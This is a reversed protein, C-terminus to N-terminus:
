KIKIYTMYSQFKKIKETLPIDAIIAKDQLHIPPQMKDVLAKLYSSKIAYNVNESKFYDRNLGSSTIGVLNGNNDFLPGGSNGPQIPVSIQYFTVDGMLGSKASIKGDTFKVEDGMVNAIPYGLTFVESGTDKINTTFNYPIPPLNNFSDDDIKLISLDNVEDSLVVKAPHHEWEGDRVISVEIVNADEVVHYNTAVYGDETLFFGSGSAVWENNSVQKPLYERPINDPDVLESISLDGFEFSCIEDSKNSGTVCCISGDYRIRDMEEVPVDNIVLSTQEGMNYISLTNEEPEIAPTTKWEQQNIPRGKKMQLFSYKTGSIFLGCYNDWDKFGFLFGLINEDKAKRYTDISIINYDSSTFGTNIGGSLTRNPTIQLSISSNDIVALEGNVGKYEWYEQNKIFNENYVLLCSGDENIVLFKNHKLVGHDYNAIIHPNGDPYNVIQTGDLVGHKYNSSQSITGDEFYSVDPGNLKSNYYYCKRKLKGSKYFINAEGEFFNKGQDDYDLYVATYEGYKQGSIYYDRVMGKPKNPAEYTVLRYYAAEKAQCRTWEKDFYETQRVGMKPKYTSKPKEVINEVPMGEQLYIVAGDYNTMKGTYPQDAVFWGEFSFGNPMKYIGLGHRRYNLFQGKYTNGDDSDMSGEGCLQGNVFEGEMVSGDNHSFKGHGERIGNKYEGEYTSEYKGNMYKIAKGFGHAKGDKCGGDWEFSVGESYYPDLLECSNGCPVWKDFLTYTQALSSMSFACFVLTLVMWIFPHSKNSLIM